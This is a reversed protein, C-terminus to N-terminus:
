QQAFYGRRQLCDFYLDDAVGNIIDGKALGQAQVKAQAKCEAKGRDLPVGANDVDLMKPGREHNCGAAVLATILILPRYRRM